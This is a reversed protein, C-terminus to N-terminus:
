DSAILDYIQEWDKAVHIDSHEFHANYDHSMLVTELGLKHGTEAYDVNDELWWCRTDKYRELFKAKKEWKGVLTIESFVDGFLNTLNEVRRERIEDSAEIATIVHFRYGLDALQGVYKIADRLPPLTRIADTRNFEHVYKHAKGHNLGIFKDKVWFREAHDEKLVLNKDDVAWQVFTDSWNTLVNDCDSVIIKNKM